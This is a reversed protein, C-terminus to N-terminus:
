EPNDIRGNGCLSNCASGPTPCEWGAELECVESCGDGAVLNGDDCGESAEQNSNACVFTCQGGASPCTWGPAIETCNLCGGTPSAGEDCVEGTM